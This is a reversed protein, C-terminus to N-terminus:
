NNAIHEELNKKAEEVDFYSIVRKCVNKRDIMRDRLVDSMAISDSNLLVRDISAIENVFEDILFKVADSGAVGDVLLLRQAEKEWALLQPADIPDNYKEKLAEIQQLIDM